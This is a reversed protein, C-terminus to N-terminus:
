VVGLASLFTEYAQITEARKADCERRSEAVVQAASALTAMTKELLVDAFPQDLRVYRHSLNLSDYMSKVTNLAVLGVTPVDMALSCVNSHFRTGLVLASKKYVAFVARCGADGQACPAFQVRSRIHFEDLAPLLEAIAKHDTYIHPVFVLDFDTQAVLRSLVRQLETRYRDVDVQIAGWRARTQDFSVNVAIYKPPLASYAPDATDFFFGSDLMVPLRDAYSAGVYEAVVQKSGDNRLAVATRKSGCMLDLFRRFRDINGEPIDVNPVCGVSTVLMPTNIRNWVRETIDITTGTASNPIWFNLLVGGGFVVLDHRNALDAFADDFYWRDPLTYNKYSKRLELATIDFGGPLCRSLIAHLGIHSANDGINGVFSSIHLVKFRQPM